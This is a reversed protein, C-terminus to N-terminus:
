FTGLRMTCDTSGVCSNKNPYGYTTDRSNADVAYNVIMIYWTSGPQMYVNGKEVVDTAGSPAAKGINFNITASNGSKVKSNQTMDCPTKSAYAIRATAIGGYEAYSLGNGTTPVVFKAVVVKNSSSGVDYTGTNLTTIANGGNAFSSTQTVNTPTLNNAAYVNFPCTSPFNSSTRFTFVASIGNATAMNGNADGAQL